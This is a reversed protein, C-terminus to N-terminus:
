PSSGKWFIHVLLTHCLLSLIV